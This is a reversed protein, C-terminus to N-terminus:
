ADLDREPVEVGKEVDAGRPLSEVDRPARTRAVPSDVRPARLGLVELAEPHVPFDKERIQEDIGGAVDPDIPNALFSRRARPRRM